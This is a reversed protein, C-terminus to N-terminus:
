QSLIRNQLYSRDLIPVYTEGNFQSCLFPYFFFSLFFLSLCFFFSLVWGFLSWVRFCGISFEINVWWGSFLELHCQKNLRYIHHILLLIIGNSTVPLFPPINLLFKPFILEVKNSRLCVFLFQNYCHFFLNHGFTMFAHCVVRTWLPRLVSSFM